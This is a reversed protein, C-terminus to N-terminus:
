LSKLVGYRYRPGPLEYTMHRSVCSNSLLPTQSSCDYLPVVKVNYGLTDGRNGIAYVKCMYMYTRLVTYTYLLLCLMYIILLHYTTHQESGAGHCVRQQSRERECM